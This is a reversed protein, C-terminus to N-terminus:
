VSTLMKNERNLPLVREILFDVVAWSIDLMEQCERRDGGYQSQNASFHVQYGEDDRAVNPAYHMKWDGSVPCRKYDGQRHNSTIYAIANPSTWKSIGNSYKKSINYKVFDIEACPFDDKLSHLRVCVGVAKKVVGGYKGHPNDTLVNVFSGKTTYSATQIEDEFQSSIKNRKIFISEPSFDHWHIQKTNWYNM